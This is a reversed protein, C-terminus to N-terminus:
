KFLRVREVYAYDIRTTTATTQPYTVLVSGSGPVPGGPKDQLHGRPSGAFVNLVDAVPKIVAPDGADILLDANVTDFVTVDITDAGQGAAIALREVSVNPAHLALLGNVQAVHTVDVTLAIADALATGQLTLTDVGAGTDVTFPDGVAAFNIVQSSGDRTVSGAQAGLPTFTLADDRDTGLITLTQGNLDLNVMPIGSIGATGGPIGPYGTVTSPSGGIAHALSVMVDATAGNLNLVKNAITVQLAPTPASVVGADSHCLATIDYVGDALPEVTVEYAGLGNGPVGDSAEAGARGIGVLDGNALIHVIVNAGATGSFAPEIITTINDINIGADDSSDLLDPPSAPSCDPATTDITLLLSGSEGGQGVFHDTVATDPDDSPDVIVVRATISHRGDPLPAPFTFAYVGPQGPVQTAFGAENGNDFIRVKFGPQDDTIIDDATPSFQIGMALLDADDVRLRLDPTNDSTLDDSDDSGTDTTLDLEFPVPARRNVITLDYTSQPPFSGTANPDDPNCAAANHDCVQVFYIEGQVVPLALMEQSSGTQTTSPDGTAVINGYRDRVRLDLDNIQENFEIEVELKGTHLAVVKFFDVDTASHLTLRSQNYTDDSGLAAAVAFDISENPEWRDPYAGDLSFLDFYTRQAGAGDAPFPAAPPTANGTWTAYGIGDVAFVGNYEGIRETCNNGARTGFRCPSGVTAGVNNLGMDPDFPADNIRFDSTFNAGGDDSTTGYLDLLFNPTGNNGFTGLNMLNRRNDYWTVVIKGDQDIHATPMVAFSQGPGHDVRSRTFTAGFDGSRAIVVDADDGNNYTNNPDDNAVVYVNNPSLPDPLIWPQMTGQLWFDAGPIEDGSNDQVNCSVTAQGAGFANNVQPVTGNAFNAGGNGDRLLPVVGTNAAQCTNTHYAVYVDGNSAVVVHSPWVFGQGGPDLRQPASWAAGQNISRSFMIQTPGGAAAGVGTFQTWVLYLNDSFPSAPNADAALWQKDDDNGDTQSVQIPTYTDTLPNPSPTTTDAIQGAFVRLEGGLVVRSLHSVFLRGQSDFAMTPDGNCPPALTSTRIVPFTQGFDNSILVTCGQMVAVQAPNRPNVVANTPEFGVFPTLVDTGAPGVAVQGTWEPHDAIFYAFSGPEPFTHTYSGGPPIDSGWNATAASDQGSSSVTALPPSAGLGRAVLPLYIHHNGPPLPPAQGVLRQYTSTQNVWTVAQGARISVQRPNLGEATIHVTAGTSGEAVAPMSPATQSAPQLPQAAFPSAQSAVGAAIRPQSRAHTATGATLMVAVCVCLLFTRSKM